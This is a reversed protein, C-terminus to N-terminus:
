KGRGSERLSKVARQLSVDLPLSDRTVGEAVLVTLHSAASSIVPWHTVLLSQAGATFFAQALGSFAEARPPGDSNASNCASLVVLDAGLHLAAIQRSTLLGELPDATGGPPALLLA